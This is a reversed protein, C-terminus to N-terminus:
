PRYSCKDKVYGNKEKDVRKVRVIYTYRVNYILPHIMKNPRKFSTTISSYPHLTLSDIRDAM